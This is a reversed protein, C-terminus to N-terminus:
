PDYYDLFGLAVFLTNIGQERLSERSKLYLNYLRRRTEKNNHDSIWIKETPVGSPIEHPSEPKNKQSATSEGKKEKVEFLPEQDKNEDEVEEEEPFKYIYITEEELLTKFM